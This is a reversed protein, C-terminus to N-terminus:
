QLFDDRSLRDKSTVYLRTLIRCSKGEKRVSGKLREKGETSTSKRM